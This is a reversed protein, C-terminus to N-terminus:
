PRESVKIQITVDGSPRVIQPVSLEDISPLPPVGSLIYPNLGGFPGIHSGDTGANLAPSGAGLQYRGDFSSSGFAFPPMVTATDSFTINGSGVLGVPLAGSILNNRCVIDIGGTTLSSSSTMVINNDFVVSLNSTGTFSLGPLLNNKIYLVWPTATSGSILFANSSLNSINNEVRTGAARYDLELPGKFFCQSVVNEPGSVRLTTSDILCRAVTVGRCGNLTVLSAFHLGMVLSGETNLPQLSVSTQILAPMKDAPTGSNDGLGYGPGILTLRKGQLIFGQYATGSGEVLIVDGSAAGNIADQIVAFDPSTGPTNNVRWTAAALEDVSGFMALLGLCYLGPRAMSNHFFMHAM